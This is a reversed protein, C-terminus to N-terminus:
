PHPVEEVPANPVDALWGQGDKVLRTAESPQLVPQKALEALEEELQEEATYRYGRVEAVIAAAKESPALEVGEDQQEVPEEALCSPLLASALGLGALALRSRWWGMTRQM